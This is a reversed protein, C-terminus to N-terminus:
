SCKYRVQRVERGHGERGERPLLRCRQRQAGAAASAARAGRGPLRAARVRARRARVAAARRGASRDALYRRRWGVAADDGTIGVAM